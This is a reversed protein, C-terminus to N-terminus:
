RGRENADEGVGEGADSGLQGHKEPTEATGYSCFLEDTVSFWCHGMCSPPVRLTGSLFTNGHGVNRTAERDGDDADDVAGDVADSRLHQHEEAGETDRDSRLLGDLIALPGLLRWAARGPL